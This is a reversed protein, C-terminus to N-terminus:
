SSAHGRDLPSSWPPVNTDAGSPTGSNEPLLGILLIPIPIPLLRFHKQALDFEAMNNVSAPRTPFFKQPNTPVILVALALLNHTLGYHFKYYDRYITSSNGFQVEVFVDNKLFDGVLRPNDYLLPYLKWGARQFEVEFARNYGTQHTYKKSDIEIVFEERWPVRSLCSDIERIEDINQLLKPSCFFFDKKTRLRSLRAGSMPGLTRLKHRVTAHGIHARTALTRTCLLVANSPVLDQQSRWSICM